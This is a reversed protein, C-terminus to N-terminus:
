SAESESGVAYFFRIRSCTAGGWGIFFKAGKRVSRILSLAYNVAPSYNIDYQGTITDTYLYGNVVTTTGSVYVWGDAPATYEAGSAGITLDIYTDSPMSANAMLINATDTVNSLDIDAGKNSVLTTGFYINGTDTCIYITTTAAGTMIDQSTRESCAFETDLINDYVSLVKKGSSMFFTTGDYYSVLQFNSDYVPTNVITEDYPVKVYIIDSIQPMYWAYWERPLADYEAQTGTWFKVLGSNTNVVSKAKIDYTVNNIRLEKVDSM